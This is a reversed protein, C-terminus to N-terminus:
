CEGGNDAMNEAYSSSGDVCRPKLKTNNHVPCYNRYQQTVCEEMERQKKLLNKSNLKNIWPYRQNMDTISHILEHGIVFGLTAYIVSEPWDVDFFPRKLLTFAIVIKHEM